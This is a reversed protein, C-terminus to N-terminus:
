GLIANGINFNLDSHCLIALYQYPHNWLHLSGFFTDIAVALLDGIEIALIALDVTAFKESYHVIRLLRQKLPQLHSVFHTHEDVVVFADDTPVDVVLVCSFLNEVGFHLCSIEVGEHLERIECFCHADDLSKM